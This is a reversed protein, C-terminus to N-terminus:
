VTYRRKKNLKGGCAYGKAQLVKNDALWKLTNLDTIETGLDSIGEIFNTLNSSHEAEKNRLINERMSALNGYMESQRALSDTNYMDAKLGLEANAMDTQRNFGLAREKNAMNFEAAQRALDGIQNGYNYDSALIGAMATARNGGSTNLINRRNASAVQGLKNVYFETDFPTYDLYQGVPRYGVQRGANRIASEYLDANSYDPDNGGLWDNLVAAGSAVLPTYRLPSMKIPSASQTKLIKTGYKPTTDLKSFVTKGTDETEIYPMDLNIDSIGSQALKLLDGYDFASEDAEFIGASGKKGGYDFKNKKKLEKNSRVMEQNNMLSTLNANMTDMSIKDSVESSIKQIEKAADAFTNGRIRHKKKFEKPLTLRNSFVYDNWIVEGEEVLNPTGENDVGMPVGGLPNEEHTGGNNVMTVGNRGSEIDGGYAVFNAMLNMHNQKEINEATGQLSKWAKLNADQNLKTLENAKNTAKNSFWGESGIDDVDVSGLSRMNSFDTLLSMNDSANSHYGAQREAASKISEIASDDINSGFASNVLMGAGQVATGILGGIGPINSAISGVGEMVNGVTTSNGKPNMLKGVGSTIGSALSNIGGLGGLADALDSDEISSNIKNMWSGLDYTNFYKKNKFTKKKSM